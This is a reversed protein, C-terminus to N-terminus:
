RAEYVHMVRNAFRLEFLSDPFFRRAPVPGPSAIVVGADIRSEGSPPRAACVRSAPTRFRGPHRLEGATGAHFVLDFPVPEALRATSALPQPLVAALMVGLALAPASPRTV